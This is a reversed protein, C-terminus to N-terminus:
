RPLLHIWASSLRVFGAATLVIYSPRPVPIYVVASIKELAIFTDLLLANVAAVVAPAFIKTRAVDKRAMSLLVAKM